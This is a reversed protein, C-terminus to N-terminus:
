KLADFAVGSKEKQSLNRAARGRALQSDCWYLCLDILPWIRGLFSKAMRALLVSDQYDPLKPPYFPKFCISLFFFKVRKWQVSLTENIGDSLSFYVLTCISAIM